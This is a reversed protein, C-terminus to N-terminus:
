YDQLNSLTNNNGSNDSSDPSLQFREARQAATKASHECTLDSVRRLLGAARQALQGRQPRGPRYSPARKEGSPAM